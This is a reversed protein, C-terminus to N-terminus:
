QVKNEEHMCLYPYMRSQINIKQRPFEKQVYDSVRGLVDRRPLGDVLESGDKGLRLLLLLLYIYYGRNALDPCTYKVFGLSLDILEFVHRHTHKVFYVSFM